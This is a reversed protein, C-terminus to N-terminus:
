AARRQEPRKLLGEREMRRRTALVHALHFENVTLRIIASGFRHERTM